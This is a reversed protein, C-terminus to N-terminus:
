IRTNAPTPVTVKITVQGSDPAIAEVANKVLNDFVRRLKDADGQRVPTEPALVLAIGHPRAVPQWLDIVERLFRHVDIPQRYPRQDRSFERFANTLM